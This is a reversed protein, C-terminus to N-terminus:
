DDLRDLDENDSCDRNQDRRWEELAREGWYLLAAIVILSFLIKM